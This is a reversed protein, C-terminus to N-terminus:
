VPLSHDIHLCKAYCQTHPFSISKNGFCLVAEFVPVAQLAEEEVEVAERVKM